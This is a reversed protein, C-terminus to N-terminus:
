DREEHVGNIVAKFCGPAREGERGNDIFQVAV